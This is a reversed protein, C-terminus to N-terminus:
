PTKGQQKFRQEPGAPAYVQVACLDAEVELAHPTGRPITLVDGTAMATTQGSVTTRSKGSLLYIVEDSGAMPETLGFAALKKGAAIQPLYKRKQEDSGALVIHGTGLGNHAAVTLAISGDARALEEIVIAIDQMRMASGGYEEPVRLGLLGLEALKPVLETPFREEEDWKRAYPAIENQAFERVTKRLIQEAETEDFSIM